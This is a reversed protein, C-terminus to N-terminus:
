TRTKRRLLDVAHRMRRTALLAMLTAYTLAGLSVLIILRPLPSPSVLHDGVWIICASMLLSAALPALFQKAYPILSMGLITLSLHVSAPWILLTKVAIGMTMTEVGKEYTLGIVAITGIQQVLAYYFWWNNKGQSNILAYQIAGICSLLGILCFWQTPRIAGVWQDGFILPIADGAITALGLFAPFAIVASGFTALLFADRVRERSDQLSSMLTHSVSSLAGTVIEHLMSYLRKAFNYIGLLLAGGLAGIIIQDLSMLSLFRNASAFAGYRGLDHLASIRIEIGPRWGANWFSAACSVASISLQSIALAWLGFGATILGLCLASSIITAIMTRMAILNFAMSRTILAHPVAAALDFVMRLGLVIILPWLEPHDVYNAITPAAAVIALYILLASTLCLWFVTDLHRDEITLRQVLAEGFAAPALASGFAGISGALAVLGFDTPTLYRSSIIFVLSSAITPVSANLGSWLVGRIAAAGRGTKLHAYADSTAVAKQDTTLQADM